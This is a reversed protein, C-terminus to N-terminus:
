LFSTFKTTPLQIESLIKLCFESRWDFQSFSTELQKRSSFSLEDRCQLTWIRDEHHNNHVSEISKIAVGAECRSLLCLLALEIYFLKMKTEAKWLM